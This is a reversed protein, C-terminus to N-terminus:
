HTRRCRHPVFLKSFTMRLEKSTAVYVLVDLASNAYGLWSFIKFLLEHYHEDKLRIFFVGSLLFYVFYPLWCFVFAGMIIGIFKAAKQDKSFKKWSIKTQVPKRKTKNMSKENISEISPNHYKGHHIRLTILDSHTSTTSQEKENNKRVHLQPILSKASKIRYHHKYGTRLAVAQQRAAAYVQIYFYIMVILPLYFSIISIFLIYYPNNPFECEKFSPSSTSLTENSISLQRSVTQATGFVAVAPFAIVASTIWIISLIYDWKKSLFSNLYEIPKTIAIYRDLGIICLAFISATSAFIDMSHWYDCLFQLNRRFLWYEDNTMEFIFAFPMVILGVLLDAFALSAIYYYTSTHLTNERIIVYIILLNGLIIFLCLLLLFIGIPYAQWQIDTITINTTLSFLEM